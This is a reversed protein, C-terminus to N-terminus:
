TGHNDVREKLENDQTMGYAETLALAAIGHSYLRCASDSKKNSSVYLGGDAAQNEILWQLAHNIQRAYKFERHNYGAGQFALLALGTAATDSDLQTLQQPADRDFGALSWSGDASQYRALFELGLYIAAETTPESAMALAAPSRNRFAEQAIVADPNISPTGGFLPSRFRNKLDPQLQESERSAPRSMVGILPDKRVGLGAPGEIADIDLESGQVQEM